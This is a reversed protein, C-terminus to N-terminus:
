VINLLNFGKSSFGQKMSIPEFLNKIEFFVSFFKRQFALAKLIKKM